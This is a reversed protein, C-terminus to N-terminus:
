NALSEQCTLQSGHLSTGIKRSSNSLCSNRNPTWVTRTTRSRLLTVRACSSQRPLKDEPQISLKSAKSDAMAPNPSSKALTMKLSQLEISALVADVIECSERDCDYALKVDGKVSIVGKPGPMKLVLYAYHPIAM